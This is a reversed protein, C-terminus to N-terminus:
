NARPLGRSRTVLDLLEQGRADLPLQAAARALVHRVQDLSTDRAHESGRLIEAFEAACAALFFRPDSEPTRQSIIDSTLRRPIEEIRDTDANRYRVYVTGLDPPSAHGPPDLLELEYLATSSQGSGVEAADVADNRFDQHAILRSEFGVQRFRRVRTANFEVQVKADRAINQITAALNQVFVRQAEEPSDIFFYNGDGHKALQGLLADNYAGAGFGAATLAVGQRRHEETQRLLDGAESDGVNAIGDTCVVIRNTAGARFTRRAVDYGVKLGESLNTAGGCRMAEITQLIRAKEAAPAQDLVLNARTGFAVISV